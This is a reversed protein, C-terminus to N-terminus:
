YGSARCLKTLHMVRSDNAGWRQRFEPLQACTSAASSSPVARTPPQRSQNRMGEVMVNPRSWDAPNVVPLEQTAASTSVVVALPTACAFGAFAAILFRAHLM